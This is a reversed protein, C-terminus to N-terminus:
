SNMRSDMAKIGEIARKFAAKQANTLNAQDVKAFISLVYVKASIRMFFYGVRYAGSKGSRRSPPAFRMKRLGGTGAVVAGAEPKKLLAQELSQLDEDSLGFRKWDAVFGPFYVFMLQVSPYHYGVGYSNDVSNQHRSYYKSKTRSQSPLRPPACRYVRTRELRKQM